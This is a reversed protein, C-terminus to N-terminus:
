NSYAFCSSSSGLTLRPILFLQEKALDNVDLSLGPVVPTLSSGNPFHFREAFRPYYKLLFFKVRSLVVLNLFPCSRTECVLYFYQRFSRGLTAAFFASLRAIDRIDASTCCM